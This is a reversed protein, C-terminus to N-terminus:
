KKDGKKLKKIIKSIYQKSVNIEKAIDVIKYKKIYYLNIILSKKEM